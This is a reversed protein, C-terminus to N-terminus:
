WVARGRKRSLTVRTTPCDLASNLRHVLVSNIVYRALFTELAIDKSVPARVNSKIKFPGLDDLLTVSTNSNHTPERDFYYDAWRVKDVFTQWDLRCKHWNIDKPIPCFSPGKSLLRIEDTHTDNRSSLDIPYHMPHPSDPRELGGRFSRKIRQKDFRRNRSSRSYQLPFFNTGM